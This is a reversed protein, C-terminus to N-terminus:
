CEFCSSSIILVYVHIEFLFYKIYLVFDRLVSLPSLFDPVFRWM